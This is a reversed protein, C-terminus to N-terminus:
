PSAELAGIALVIGLNNDSYLNSEIVEINGSMMIDKISESSNTSAKLKDM